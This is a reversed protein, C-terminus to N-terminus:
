GCYLEGKKTKWLLISGARSDLAANAASPMVSGRVCDLLLHNRIIKVLRSYASTAVCVCVCVCAGACVCM